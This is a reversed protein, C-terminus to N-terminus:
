SSLAKHKAEYAADMTRLHGDMCQQIYTEIHRKDDKTADSKKLQAVYKNRINRAQHKYKELIDKALKQLKSKYETTM